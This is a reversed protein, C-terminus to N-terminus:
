PTRRVVLVDGSYGCSVLCPGMGDFDGAALHHIKATDRALTAKTTSLRGDEGADIWILRIRGDYGATATERGEHSPDLDAVVAGRLRNDSRDLMNTGLAGTEADRRLFRYTGDNACVAVGGHEPFWAIRALTAGLDDRHALAWRGDGDPRYESAWGDDCALVIGADTVCAGKANGEHRLGIGESYAIRVPGPRPSVAGILAEGFFGAVLFEIGPHGEDMEGAVVGHALAPTVKRHEVWSRDTGARALVRVLGRGGDDEGGELVGVAIVEDGPIRPAIDACIVQVLEGSPADTAGQEEIGEGYAPIPPLEMPEFGDGARRFMLIRGRQDVAVIEDGPTRRDLDGCAVGNVRVDSEYAATLSWGDELVAPISIPAPGSSAPETPSSDGAPAPADDNTGNPEDTSACAALLLLLLAAFAPLRRHNMVDALPTM